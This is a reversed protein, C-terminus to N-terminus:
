QGQLSTRGGGGTLHASYVFDISDIRAFVQSINESDRDNGDRRRCLMPTHLRMYAQHM